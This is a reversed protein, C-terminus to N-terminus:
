KYAKTNLWEQYDGKNVAIRLHDPYDNDDYYNVCSVKINDGNSLEFKNYIHDGLTAKVNDSIQNTDPLINSVDKTVSGIKNMCNDFDIELIGSIAVISYNKDDTKFGLVIQDYTKFNVIEDDSYINISSFTLDKYYDVKRSEIKSANLYRLITDGISMGEIQFDSIDDAKTWSQLSIILVLVAIFVRM